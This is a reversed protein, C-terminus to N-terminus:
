LPTLAHRVCVRFRQHQALLVFLAFASAVAGNIFYKSEAADETSPGANNEHTGDDTPPKNKAGDEVSAAAAAEEM